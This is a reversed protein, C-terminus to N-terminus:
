FAHGISITLAGVGGEILTKHYTADISFSRYSVGVGVTAMKYDHQGQTYGGRVFCFQRFAYEMGGSVSVSQTRTPLVYLQTAVAVSLRHDTAIDTAIEGGIDTHTPMDVKPRDKGYNLPLGIGVVSAGVTYDYARGVWAIRDSYHLSANCGVTTATTDYKSRIFSAGVSAALGRWIKAAYTADTTFWVPALTTGDDLAYELGGMYRLGALFAHRGTKYGAGLAHYQLRGAGELLSHLQGTYSIDFAKSKNHFFSTPNTYIYMGKSLGVTHSGMALARASPTIDLIPLANNQASVSFTTVLVFALLTACIRYYRKM